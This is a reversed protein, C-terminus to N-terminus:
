VPAEDEPTIVKVVSVPPELGPVPPPSSQVAAGSTGVYVKGPVVAPPAFVIVTDTARSVSPLVSFTGSVKRKFAVLGPPATEVPSPEIESTGALGAVSVNEAGETTASDAPSMVTTALRLPMRCCSTVKGIVVPPGTPEPYGAFEVATDVPPTVRSKVAGGGSPVTVIM